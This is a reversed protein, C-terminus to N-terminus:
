PTKISELIGSISKARLYYGHNLHLPLETNACSYEDVDALLLM